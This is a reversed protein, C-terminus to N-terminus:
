GSIGAEVTFVNQAGTSSVVKLTHGGGYSAASSLTIVVQGVQTVPYTQLAAAGNGFYISGGTTSTVISTSTLAFWTYANTAIAFQTGATTPLTGIGNMGPGATVLNGDFYVASIKTSSPGPNLIFIELVQDLCNCSGPNLQFNYSQIILKETVPQGGNQTLSGALGGVFVYVVIAAAVTIAILILTAVIVSVGRRRYL